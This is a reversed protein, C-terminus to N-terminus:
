LFSVVLRFVGAPAAEYLFGDHLCTARGQQVLARLRAHPTRVARRRLAGVPPLDGRAGIEVDTYIKLLLEQFDAQAAARRTANEEFCRAALNRFRGDYNLGFCLDRSAVLGHGGGVKKCIAEIADMCAAQIEVQFRTGATSFFSVHTPTVVPIDTQDLQGWTRLRRYYDRRPENEHCQPLCNEFASSRPCYIVDLGLSDLGLCFCNDSCLVAIQEDFVLLLFSDSTDNLWGAPDKVRLNEGVRTPIVVDAGDRDQLLRDVLWGPLGDSKSHSDYVPYSRLHQAERLMSARDEGAKFAAILEWESRKGALARILVRSKEAFSAM